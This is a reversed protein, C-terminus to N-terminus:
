AAVGSSARSSHVHETEIGAVAAAGAPLGPLMMIVSHPRATVWQVLVRGSVPWAERM